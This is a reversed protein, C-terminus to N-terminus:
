PAQLHRLIAAALVQPCNEPALHDCGDLLEVDAEPIVAALEALLDAGVFAPSRAGGLLVSKADIATFRVATRAVLEAQIRHEYLSTELLPEMRSWEEGRVGLRLISKICWLPMVALPAPAFGAGKVMCAFAGRRDGEALRQAYADVWGLRLGGTLSVGPDYVLVERFADSQRAAELAVLGGFSHGFVADAQTEAAIASLDRCEDDISHEPLQPGSLGRGRRDVLHVEFRDALLLALDLYDLGSRLTGGLLILGRGSGISHYGLRTGDPSCVTRARLMTSM